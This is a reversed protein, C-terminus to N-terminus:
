IGASGNRVCDMLHREARAQRQTRTVDRWAQRALAGLYFLGLSCVFLVALVEVIGAVTEM